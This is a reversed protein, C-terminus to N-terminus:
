WGPGAAAARGGVAQATGRLIVGAAEPLDACAARPEGSTALLLARAPHVGGAVAAQVDRPKDGVAWARAADLGLEACAAVIMGPGPKRWPHEVAFRPVTGTPHFPCYYLGALRVGGVGGRGAVPEAELLRRMADNVREVEALGYGGRAVGGQSTYVVLAFGAGALSALAPGAGPMLRVLSPDGLDGAHGSDRTVGQTDIITDDRDLFVTWGAAWAGGAASGSASDPAVAERSVPAASPNRADMSGPLM